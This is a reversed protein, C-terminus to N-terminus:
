ETRLSEVPNALAAKIAQSGVTLMAILFGVLGALAFMWWSIRIRYAYDQLWHNMLVWTIPCAIFFSVLVLKLFDKSLMAAIAGVGAGLVKRIGIERTRQRAALWSLGFLGLCCIFVSMATAYNIVRQWNKEEDYQKSIDDELFSVQLPSDGLHLKYIKELTALAQLSKDNRSKVFLNEYHKMVFVAPGIKEKLSNHHYDKVVGIINMELDGEWEGPLKVQQGIPEKLGAARVFSENVLVSQMSDSSFAPSFNRGNILPIELAPLYHEDIRLKLSIIEKGNTKVRNGEGWSNEGSVELVAPENELENRFFKVLKDPDRQPPLQLKIIGSPNYGLDSNLIFDMQLYYVTAAAMLGIALTFQLV